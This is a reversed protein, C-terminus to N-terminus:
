VRSDALHRGHVRAVGGPHHERVDCESRSWLCFLSPYSGTISLACGACLLGCREHTRAGDVVGDVVHEDTHQGNIPYKLRTDKADLAVGDVIKGPLIFYLVVQLAFWALYVIIAQPSYLYTQTFSLVSHGAFPSRGQLFADGFPNISVCQTANCAFYLTFILSPLAVLMLAAGPPGMFEYQIHPQESTGTSKASERRRTLWAYPIAFFSLM